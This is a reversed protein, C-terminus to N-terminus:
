VRQSTLINYPNISLAVLTTIFSPFLIPFMFGDNYTLIVKFQPAM